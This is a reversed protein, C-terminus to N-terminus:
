GLTAHMATELSFHTSLQPPPDRVSAAIAASTSEVASIVAVTM